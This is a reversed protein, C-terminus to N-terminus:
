DEREIVVFIDVMPNVALGGWTGHLQGMDDIHEIVGTKGNYARAQADRGNDDDMSVISITDGVRWM